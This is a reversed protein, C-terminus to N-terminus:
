VGLSSHLSNIKDKLSDKSKKELKNYVHLFTNWLSPLEDRQNEKVKKIMVDLDKNANSLRYSETEGALGSPIITSSPRDLDLVGKERIIENIDYQISDSNEATYVIKVFSKKYKERSEKPFKDWFLTLLLSYKPVLNNKVQHTDIDIIQPLYDDILNIQEQESDGLNKGYYFYRFLHNMRHTQNQIIPSFTPNETKLTEMESDYKATSM